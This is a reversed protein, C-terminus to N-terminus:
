LKAFSCVCDFTLLKIQVAFSDLSKLTVMNILLVYYYILFRIRPDFQHIQIFKYGSSYFFPASNTHIRIRVSFM